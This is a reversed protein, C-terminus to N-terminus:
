SKNFFQVCGFIGGAATPMAQFSINDGNQLKRMTKTEGEFHMIRPGSVSATDVLTASGFTLVESEQPFLATGGAISLATVNVGAKYRIIAWQINNIAGGTNTINFSWRIGTITGPFTSTILIRSVTTAAVMAENLVILQKDLPRRVKAQIVVPAGTRQRKVGRRVVTTM